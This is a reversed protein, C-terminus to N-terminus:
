LPNLESPLQAVQRALGEGEERAAALQLESFRMKDRLEDIVSNVQTARAYASKPGCGSGM